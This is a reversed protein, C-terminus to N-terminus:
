KIFLVGNALTFSPDTHKGTVKKGNVYAIKGSKIDDETANADTTTIYQSPIPHVTVQTLYNHGDTPVVTQTEKTPTVEKVQPNVGETSDMSGSVGLISVGKRINSAILKTKESDDLAVSGGETYGKPISVTADKTSIKGGVTGNVPMDGVIKQGDVYATEGEKISAAVANADSTDPFIVLTEEDSALPAQLHKVDNYVVGNIKITQAM